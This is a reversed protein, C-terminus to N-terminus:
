VEKEIMIRQRQGGSVGGPGESVLTQMGMPMKRIDGAIGAIQGFAVNFAM